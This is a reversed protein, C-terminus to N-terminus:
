AGATYTRKHLEVRCIGCIDGVFEVLGFGPIPKEFPYNKYLIDNCKCRDCPKLVATRPWEKAEDAM